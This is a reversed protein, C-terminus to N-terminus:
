DKRCRQMHEFSNKIDKQRADADQQKQGNKQKHDNPYFCIGFSRWKVSLKSNPLETFIKAQEFKSTHAGAAVFGSEESDTSSIRAYGTRANKNSLVFDIFQRLQDINKKPM